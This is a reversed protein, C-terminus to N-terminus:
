SKLLVVLPVKERGGAAAWSVEAVCRFLGQANPHIAARPVRNEMRVAGGFSAPKTAIGQLLVQADPLAGGNGDAATLRLPVDSEHDIMESSDAAACVFPAPPSDLLVQDFLDLVPPADWIRSHVTPIGNTPYVGIPLFFTRVSTGRLWSASAAATTGDGFKSTSYTLNGQAHMVCQTFTEVGWGAVNTIPPTPAGGPIAIASTRAGMRRDAKGAHDAILAPNEASAAWRLDILPGVQQGGDDVVLGLPRGGPTTHATKAPDPPFLDYPAQASQLVGRVEEATFGAPPFGMAEGEVLGHVMGPVGAWTAGLAIVQAIGDVAEPSTELLRRAVLTGTSHAIVVVRAGGNAARLARIAALAGAQVAPDDVALRWDWGVPRFNDGGPITYGYRGSLIDYLAQAQKAIGLIDRIPEGAVIDGPPNDPGKLLAILARRKDGDLLDGISPPFITRNTSTQLLKSAPFGPIFIVPKTPM